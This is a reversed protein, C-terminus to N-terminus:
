FYKAARVRHYESTPRSLDFGGDFSVMNLNGPRTQNTWPPPGFTSYVITSSTWYISNSFATGGKAVAGSNIAVRNSFFKAMEDFSPLFWGNYFSLYSYNQAAGAAHYLFGGSTTQPNGQSAVIAQTNQLGRGLQSPLSNLPPLPPSTATPSTTILNVANKSWSYNPKGVGANVDQIAVIIGHPVNADYNVFASGNWYKDGSKLVYGIIGGQYFQGVAIMDFHDLTTKTQTGVKVSVTGNSAGAPVAVTLQTLTAASVTATTGNFKVENESPVTSFGNGTITISAGIVGLTPAFGSVSLTPILTFDTASTATEGAVTVTIKGSTTSFPVKTTISTTTSASVTAIRNDSFKVINESPVPSFNTGTIVITTQTTASAPTFSSITPASPAALVTFDTSSTGTLSGVAVTIKGTIAGVPVATTLSTSTAESVVAAVGNFKVTNSAATASFNSGTITVVAGALGSGPSFSTISPASGTGGGASGSGSTGTTGGNKASPAPDETACTTFIMGLMIISARLLNTSFPYM